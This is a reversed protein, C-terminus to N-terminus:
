LVVKTAKSGQKKIFIGNSPNEVKVGQLNYYEVPANVDVNIEGIATAEDIYLAYKSAAPTAYVNNARPVAFGKVYESSGNGCYFNGACDWAAAYMQKGTTSINYEETLSVTGDEAYAINYVTTVNPASCAILRTADPSIAIAARSRQKGGYSEFYKIEGNADVYILAPETNSPTGKYQCYWIGGRNDYIVNASKDYNATYKQDFTVNATGTSLIDDTGINYEIVRNLTSGTAMEDSVRTLALLKTNEGAGKVDFSQMPGVLFNGEADNYITTDTMTMGAVLSNTFEGAELLEALSPASLIYDGQTNYRTVFIRGDDAM